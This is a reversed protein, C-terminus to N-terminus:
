RVNVIYDILVTSTPKYSIKVRFDSNRKVEDNENNSNEKFIFVDGPSVDDSGDADDWRVDIYSNSMNVFTGDSLSAGDLTDTTINSSENIYQVMIVIDEEPINEGSTLTLIAVTDDEGDKLRDYKYDELKGGLNPNAKLTGTYGYIFSAIVAAMVITIAVLLIVAIVPSVGRKDKKVYKM